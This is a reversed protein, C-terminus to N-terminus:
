AHRKSAPTLFESKRKFLKTQQYSVSRAAPEASQISKYFEVVKQSHRFDKKSFARLFMGDLTVARSIAVYAQGAAFARGFDAVMWDLTLGQAKHITVAWALILPIQKISALAEKTIKDPEGNKFKTIVTRADCWEYFELRVVDGNFLRVDVFDADLDVVVARQGNVIKVRQHEDEVLPAHTNASIMVQAGVKLALILPTSLNKELFELRKAGDATKNSWKVAAYEQAQSKIKDLQVLNEQDRKDNTCYLKTPLLGNRSPLDAEPPLVREQLQQYSEESLQGIRAERLIKLFHPDQQRYIETLEVYDRICNGWCEAEFAFIREDRCVPALQAFDGVCVLQTGGFSCDSGRVNRAIYELKELLACSLMSIEDIVLVKATRWHAPARSAMLRLVERDENMLGLKAWSHITTGGIDLAARGTPAMVCVEGPFPYKKRLMEIIKHTTYTKGTGPNGYLYFSCGKLALDIARLQQENFPEEEM